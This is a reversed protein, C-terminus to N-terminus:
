PCAQLLALLDLLHQRNMLEERRAGLLDLSELFTAKVVEFDLVGLCNM